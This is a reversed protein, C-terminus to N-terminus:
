LWHLVQLAKEFDTKATAIERLHYKNAIQRHLEFYGAAKELDTVILARDNFSQDKVCLPDEALLKEFDLKQVFQEYKKPHLQLPLITFFAKLNM